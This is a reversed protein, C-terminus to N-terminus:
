NFHVPPVGPINLSNISGAVHDKAQNISDNIGNQVGLAAHPNANVAAGGAGLSAAGGAASGTGALGAIATGATAIPGATTAAAIVPAAIPGLAALASIIVGSIASAAALM